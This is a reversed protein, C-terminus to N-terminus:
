ESKELENALDVINVAKVKKSQKLMADMFGEEGLAEVGRRHLTAFVGAMEPDLAPHTLVGKACVTSASSFCASTCASSWTSVAAGGSGAKSRLKRVFVEVRELEKHTAAQQRVALLEAELGRISVGSTEEFPGRSEAMQIEEKNIIPM